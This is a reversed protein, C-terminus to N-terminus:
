DNKFGITFRYVFFGAVSWIFAWQVVWGYQPALFAFILVVIWIIIFLMLWLTFMKGDNIFSGTIFYYLNKINFLLYISALGLLVYDTIDM